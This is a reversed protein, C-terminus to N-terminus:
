AVVNINLKIKHDYQIVILFKNRNNISMLMKHAISNHIYKICIDCLIIVM